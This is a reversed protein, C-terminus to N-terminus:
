FRVSMSFENYRIRSRKIYCSMTVNPRVFFYGHLLHADTVLGMDNNLLIPLGGTSFKSCRRNLDRLM